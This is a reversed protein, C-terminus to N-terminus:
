SRIALSIRLINFLLNQGNLGVLKFNVMGLKLGYDVRENIPTWDRIEKWMNRNFSYPKGKKSGYM